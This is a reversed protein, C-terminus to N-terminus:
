GSWEGGEGTLKDLDDNMVHNYKELNAFDPDAEKYTGTNWDWSLAFKRDIPVNRAKLFTYWMVKSEEDRTLYCVFEAHRAPGDSGAVNAVDVEKAKVTERNMQHPVLIPIGLRGSMIKLDRAVENLRAREDKVGSNPEILELQDIVVFDLEEEKILAEIMRPTVGNAFNNMTWIKFKGREGLRSEEELRSIYAAYEEAEAKLEEEESIDKDRRMIGRQLDYNSFNSEFTDLRLGVKNYDMELSFLGVSLKRDLLRGNFWSWWLDLLCTWTKGKGTRAVYLYFGPEYGGFHDNMGPHAFNVRWAGEERQKGREVVYDYRDQADAAFDKAGTVELMGLIDYMREPLTKLVNKWGDPEKLAPKLNMLEVNLEDHAHIERLEDVAERIEVEVETPNWDINGYRGKVSKLSPVYGKEDKTKWIDVAVSQYPGFYDPDIRQSVLFSTDGRKVVEALLIREIETRELVTEQENRCRTIGSIM